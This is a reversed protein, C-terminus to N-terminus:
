GEALRKLAEFLVGAHPCRAVVKVPDLRGVLALDRGKRYEGRRSASTAQSLQRALDRKPV